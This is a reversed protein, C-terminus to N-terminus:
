GWLATFERWEGASMGSSEQTVQEGALRRKLVAVGQASLTADAKAVAFVMMLSLLLQLTKKM